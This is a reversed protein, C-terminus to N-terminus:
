NNSNFFNTNNVNDVVNLNKNQQVKETMLQHM